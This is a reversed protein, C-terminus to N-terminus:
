QEMINHIFIARNIMEILDLRQVTYSNCFYQVFSKVCASLHITKFQLKIEPDNDGQLIVTTTKKNM